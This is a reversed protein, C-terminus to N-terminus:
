WSLEGDCGLMGVGHVDRVVAQEAERLRFPEVVGGHAVCTDVGGAGQYTVCSGVGVALAEM